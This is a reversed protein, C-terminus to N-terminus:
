RNNINAAILYYSRVNSINSVKETKKMRLKPPAKARFREDLGILFIKALVVSFSTSVDKTDAVSHMGGIVENSTAFARSSTTEATYAAASSSSVISLELFYM